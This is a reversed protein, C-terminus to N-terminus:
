PLILVAPRIVKDLYGILYQSNNKTEVFESIVINKIDVAWIKIPKKACYVNKKQEKQRAM